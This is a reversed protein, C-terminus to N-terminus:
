LRAKELATEAELLIRSTVEMRMLLDPLHSILNLAKACHIAGIDLMTVEKLPDPDNKPGAWYINFLSTQSPHALECLSAYYLEWGEPKNSYKKRACFFMDLAEGVRIPKIEIDDVTRRPPKRLNIEQYIEKGNEVKIQFASKVYSSNYFRFIENRAAELGDKEFTNKVSQAFYLGMVYNEFFTRALICTSPIREWKLLYRCDDYLDILKNKIIKGYNLYHKGAPDQRLGLAVVTEKELTLRIKLSEALLQDAEQRLHSPPPQPRADQM